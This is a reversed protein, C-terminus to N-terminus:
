TAPGAYASFIFLTDASRGAVASTFHPNADGQGVSPFDLQPGACASGGAAGGAAGGAGKGGAGATGTLGGAGAGAAGTAGATGTAGGTGSAGASGQYVGGDATRGTNVQTVDGTHPDIQEPTACVGSAACKQGPACDVDGACQNRCQEDRGCVLPPKCDSNYICHVETAAECTYVTATSGGDATATTKLCMGSGACDGNVACQSHCLGFTCILGPACDSNLACATTPTPKASSGCGALAVMSVLGLCFGFAFRTM